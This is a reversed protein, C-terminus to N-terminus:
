DWVFRGRGQAGTQHLVRAGRWVGRRGREERAERMESRVGERLGEGGELLDTTVSARTPKGGGAQLL